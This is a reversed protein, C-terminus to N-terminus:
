QKHRIDEEEGYVEAFLENIDVGFSRIVGEVPIHLNQVYQLVKGGDLSGTAARNAYLLRFVMFDFSMNNRDCIRLTELLLTFEIEWPRHEAGIWCEKKLSMIEDYLPKLHLKLIPDSGLYMSEWDLLEEYYYKETHYASVVERLSELAKRENDIAVYKERFSDIRKWIYGTLVGARGTYYTKISSLLKDNLDTLFLKTNDKFHYIKDFFIKIEDPSSDPLIDLLFMRKETTNLGVFACCSTKTKYKFPICFLKNCPIIQVAKSLDQVRRKIVRDIAPSSSIGSQSKLSEGLKHVTNEPHELINNSIMDEAETTFPTNDDLLPSSPYFTTKCDRCEYRQRVLVTRILKGNKVHLMTRRNPLRGKKRINTSHCDSNPCQVPGKETRVTVSFPDFIIEKPEKFLRNQKSKAKSATNAKKM